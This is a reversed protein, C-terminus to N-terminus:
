REELHGQELKVPVHCLRLPRSGKELKALHIYCKWADVRVSIRGKDGRGRGHMSLWLRYALDATSRHVSTAARPSSKGSTVWITWYSTGPAGSSHTLLLTLSHASSHTLLNEQQM